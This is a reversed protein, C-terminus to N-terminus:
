IFFTDRLEGGWRILCSDRNTEFISLEHIKVIVLINLSWNWLDIPKPPNLNARNLVWSWGQITEWEEWYNGFYKKIANAYWDKGAKIM